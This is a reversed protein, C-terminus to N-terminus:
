FDLLIDLINYDMREFLEYFIEKRNNNEPAILTSKFYAIAEDVSYVAPFKTDLHGLVNLGYNEQSGYFIPITSFKLSEIGVASSRYLVFQASALDSPM